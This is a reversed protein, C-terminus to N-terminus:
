LLGFWCYDLGAVLLLGFWCYDYWFGVIIWVLLWLEIDLYFIPLIHVQPPPLGPGSASCSV